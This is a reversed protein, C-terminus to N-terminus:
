FPRDKPDTVLARALAVRKQMGGSLESPYKDGFEAIELQEMKEHVKQEIDKKGMKTTQQLPMAINGFVTLSDFLANNQFCYSFQSRFADFENRDM